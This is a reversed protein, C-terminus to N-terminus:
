LNQVWAVVGEAHQQKERRGGNWGVDGDRRGREEVFKVRLQRVM